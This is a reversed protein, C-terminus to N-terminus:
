ALARKRSDMRRCSESVPRRKDTDAKADILAAFTWDNDIFIAGGNPHVKIQRLRLSPLFHRCFVQLRSRSGFQNRDIGPIKLTSLYFFHPTFDIFSM